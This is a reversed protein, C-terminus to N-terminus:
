AAWEKWPVFAATVGRKALARAIGADASERPGQKPYPGRHTYAWRDGLEASDLLQRMVTRGRLKEGQGVRYRVHVWHVTSVRRGRTFAIWGVINLATPAIAVLVQVDSRDLVATLEPVVAQKYMAWSLDRMKPALKYGETWSSLVYPRDEPLARRVVVLLPTNGPQSV